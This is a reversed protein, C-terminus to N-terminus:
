SEIQLTPPQDTTPALPIVHVTNPAGKNDDVTRRSLLTHKVALTADAGTLEVVGINPTFVIQRFQQFRNGQAARQHRAAITRYVPIHTSADAPNLENALKLESTLQIDPPLDSDPRVDRVLQLRWSWEPKKDDPVSVGTPWGRTPLLAPSRRLRSRRGPSIQTGPALTLPAAKKWAIREPNLGREYNQLLSNSRALAEVVDKFNNHASSSTLQIIRAAKTGTWFDMAMSCAYHVDGSLFIVKGFGAVHKLLEERAPENAGWGEADADEVGTVPGGPNCPDDAKHQAHNWGYKFDGVMSYIPAGIEDIVRPLIVPAASVVVLLEKGDTFPGGPIQAGPADNLLSPPAIGQGRFKRRTRTDLVVTLHRPGPVTYNWKVQKDLGAATLGLLVNM